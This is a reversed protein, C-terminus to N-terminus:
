SLEPPYDITKVYEYPPAKEVRNFSLVSHFWDNAPHRSSVPVVFSLCSICQCDPESCPVDFPVTSGGKDVECCAAGADDQLLALATANAGSTLALSIVLLILAFFYRSRIMPIDYELQSRPTL